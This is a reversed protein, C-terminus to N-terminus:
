LLITNNQNKWRNDFTSNLSQILDKSFKEPLEIIFTEKKRISFGHGLLYLKDKTIIYRDHLHDFPFGRIEVKSFEAKFDKLDQDTVKINNKKSSTLFKVKGKSIKELAELCDETLYPDCIKIEGSLNSLISVFDKRSTRPKDPEFYYVEINEKNVEYPRRQKWGGNKKILFKRVSKLKLTMSINSPTIKWKEFLKNEINKLSAENEFFGEKWLHELADKPNM